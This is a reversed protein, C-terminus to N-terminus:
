RGGEIIRHPSSTPIIRHLQLRAAELLSRFESETRERGHVLVLMELDGFKISSWQDWEPVVQEVVLVRGGPKMAERCHGLIIASEEDSWDHIINRLVYADAPPVARFFDGGVLEIRADLALESRRARVEEIVEPREFLVGRISPNARLIARLLEGRGGGVDVLTGIGSFDYPEAVSVRPDSALYRRFVRGADPDQHAFYSFLDEGFLHDIAAQGTRVSHGLAGWARWHWDGGLMLVEDRCGPPVRDPHGSHLLASQPTQAFVRPGVESFVGLGTLFRLLRYLSPPHTGTLTALTEVDKPADALHDAVGLEAAVQIARSWWMGLALNRLRSAPEADGGRPPDRRSPGRQAKLVPAPAGGLADTIREVQRPSTNSPIQDAAFFRAQDAEPSTGPEGAVVRCIFSFVIESEETKAYVGALRVVEVALGVEERVERVVADWPTEGEEVAGGPLNWLDLDRRHCLLIEGQDDFILAFAGLRSTM